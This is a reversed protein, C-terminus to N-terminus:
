AIATAKVTTLTISVVAPGTASSVAGNVTATAATGNSSAAPVIVASAPISTQQINIIPGSTLSPSSSAASSAASVSSSPASSMSMGTSEAKVTVGSDYIKTRSTYTPYPISTTESAMTSTACASSSSAHASSSPSSITTCEATSSSATSSSHVTVADHLISSFVSSAQEPTLTTTSEVTAQATTVTVTQQAHTSTSTYLSSSAYSNDTTYSSASTYSNYNIDYTATREYSSHSLSASIYPNYANDYTATQAYSSYTNDYTTAGEDKVGGDPKSRVPVSQIITAGCSQMIRMATKETTCTATVVGSQKLSPLAFCREEEKPCVSLNWKGSSTCQAVAGDICATQGASCKDEVTLSQYALNMEQAQQGNSQLFGADLAPVPLPRGQVKLTTAAFLFAIIKFAFM